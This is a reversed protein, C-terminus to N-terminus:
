IVYQSSEGGLGISLSKLEGTVVNAAWVTRSALISTRVTGYIWDGIKQKRIAYNFNDTYRSGLSGGTVGVGTGETFESPITPRGILKTYTWNDSTTTSTGGNHQLRTIFGM